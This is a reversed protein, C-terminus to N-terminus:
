KEDVEVAAAKKKLQHRRYLEAGTTGLALVILVWWWSMNQEAEPALPAIEDEIAVTAAEAKEETEPTAALATEEEAIVVEEVTAEVEEAAEVPEEVVPTAPTVTRTRAPAAAITPIAVSEETPTVEPENDNSPAPTLRRIIDDLETEKDELQKQLDKRLEITKSLTAEAEDLSAEFKALKAASGNKSIAAIQAKLQAIDERIATIDEDAADIDALLKNYAAAKSEANALKGRFDATQNMQNRTLKKAEGNDDIYDPTNHLDYEALLINKNNFNDNTYVIQGAQEDTYEATAVRQRGETKRAIYYSLESYSCLKNKLENIVPTGVIVADANQALSAELADPVLSANNESIDVNKTSLKNQPVYYAVLFERGDRGKESGQGILVGKEGVAQEATQGEYIWTWECGEVYYSTCTGEVTYKAPPQKDKDKGKKDGMNQPTKNVVNFVHNSVIVENVGDGDVDAYNTEPEFEAKEMVSYCNAYAEATRYDGFEKAPKKEDSDVVVVNGRGGDVLKINVNTQNYKEYYKVTATYGASEEIESYTFSSKVQDFTVTQGKCIEVDGIVLSEGDGLGNVLNKIEEVFQSQAAEKSNCTQSPLTAETYTTTTVTGRTVATIQGDEIVYSTRKDSIEIKTAGNAIKFDESNDSVITNTTSESAAYVVGDEMMFVTGDEHVVTKGKKLRELERASVEEEGVVAKETKEFIVLGGSKNENALRYNLKKSVTEDQGNENKVTYTVLCYNQSDDNKNKVWETSVLKGSEVEPIYYTELIAKFLPELTKSWNPTTESAAKEELTVILGEGSKVFANHAATVAKALDELNKDTGNLVANIAEGNESIDNAIDNFSVTAAANEAMAAEYVALAEDYAKKANDYDKAAKKYEDQAKTVAEDAAAVNASIDNFAENAAAITTANKLDESAKNVNEQYEAVQASVDNAIKEAAAAATAGESVADNGSVAANNATNDSAVYALELEDLDELDAKIEGLDAKVDDETNNVDVALDAKENNIKAGEKQGSLALLADTDRIVEDVDGLVAKDEPTNGDFNTGEGYFDKVEDAVDAVTAQVNAVATEQEADALKLVNNDDDKKLGAEESENALAAMPNLIMAASLGVALAKIINNNKRM